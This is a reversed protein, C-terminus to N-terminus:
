CRVSTSWRWCSASSATSRSTCARSRAARRRSTRPACASLLARARVVELLLHQVTDPEHTYFSLCGRSRAPRSCAGSRRPEALLLRTADLEGAQAARLLEPRSSSAAAPRAPARRRRRRAGAPLLWRPRLVVCSAAPPRRSRRRSRTTTATSSAPRAAGLHDASRGSRCRTASRLPEGRRREASGSRSSCTPSSRSSAATCRSCAAGMAWAPWTSATSTSSATADRSADGSYISAWIVASNSDPFTHLPGAVGRRRIADFHPLKGQAILPEIVRWDAGDLGVLIVDLGDGRSRGAARGDLTAATAPAARVAGRGRALSRRRSWCLPMDRSRSAAGPGPTRPCGARAAMLGADVAVVGILSPSPWWRWTRWCARLRAAPPGVPVHDYTLGHLFWPLWFLLGFGLSASSRARRSM